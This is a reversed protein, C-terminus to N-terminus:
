FSIDESGVAKQKKGLYYSILLSLSPCRSQQSLTAFHPCEWKGPCLKWSVTLHYLCGNEREGKDM